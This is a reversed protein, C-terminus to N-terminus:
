FPGEAFVSKSGQPHPTGTYACLCKTTVVKGSAGSNNLMIRNGVVEIDDNSKLHVLLEGKTIKIANDPTVMIELGGRRMIFYDWEQVKTVQPRSVQGDVFSVIVESDIRPVFAVGFGGDDNFIRLPLGERVIDQGELIVDCTMADADIAKVTGIADRKNGGAIIERLRILAEAM